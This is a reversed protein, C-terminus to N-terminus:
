PYPAVCHGYGDHWTKISIVIRKGLAAFAGELQDMRSVHRLDLLRDVQPLHQGLRRALEANRV